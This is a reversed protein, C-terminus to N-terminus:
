IYAIGIGALEGVAKKVKKFCLKTPGDLHQLHNPITFHPSPTPTFYGLRICGAKLAKCDRWVAPNRVILGNRPPNIGMISLLINAQTRM